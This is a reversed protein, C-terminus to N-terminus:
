LKHREPCLPYCCNVNCATMEMQVKSNWYFITGRALRHDSHTIHYKDINIEIKRTM